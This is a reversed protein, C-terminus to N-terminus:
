CVIVASSVVASERDRSSERDATQQDIDRSFWSITGLRTWQQAEGERRM